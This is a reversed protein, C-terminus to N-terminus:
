RPTPYLTEVEVYMPCLVIKLCTGIPNISNEIFYFHLVGM